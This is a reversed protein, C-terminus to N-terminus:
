ACLIISVAITWALVVVRYNKDLIKCSVCFYEDKVLILCKIHM